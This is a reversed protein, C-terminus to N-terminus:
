LKSRLKFRGNRSTPNKWKLKKSKSPCKLNPCPTTMSSKPKNCYKCKLNKIESM